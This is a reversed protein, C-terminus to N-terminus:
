KHFNINTFDVNVSSQYLFKKARDIADKAKPPVNTAEPELNSDGDEEDNEEVHGTNEVGFNSSVEQVINNKTSLPGLDLNDNVKVLENLDLMPFYYYVEDDLLKSVLIKETCLGGRKLLKTNIHKKYM